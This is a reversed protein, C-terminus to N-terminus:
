GKTLFFDVGYFNITRELYEVTDRYNLGWCIDGIMKGSPTYGVWGAIKGGERGRGFARHVQVAM